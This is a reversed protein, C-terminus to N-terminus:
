RAARRLFEDTERLGEPSGIEYFRDPVEYGILDGRDVLAGYLNALDFKGKKMWSKFAEARLLGLGYDIHRMAATRNSKSYRRLIGAEFEVNSTDWRGDNPYVTMLAPQEAARFAAVVPAFPTPLYSDGYMVLFESGLLPLAKALAGGTGLLDPWDFSYTVALGFRGGDAVAAEIMEGLFGACIVVRAVEQSRLYRLQHFVFPEGAVELLAKPIKETAPRMRTALGGALLALPPMRM